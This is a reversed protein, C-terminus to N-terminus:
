DAFLRTRFIRVRSRKNVSINSSSIRYALSGIPALICVHIVKDVSRIKLYYEIVLLKLDYLTSIFWFISELALLFGFKPKGFYISWSHRFRGIVFACIILFIATGVIFWTNWRSRSFLYKKKTKLFDKNM